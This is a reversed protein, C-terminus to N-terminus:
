LNIGQDRLAQTLRPILALSIDVSIHSADRYAVVGDKVAPCVNSCLWPNPDIVKFGPISLNKSRESTNCETISYNSLCAPIDRTPHPTDTIYILHPSSNKVQNLLKRQGENWWQTRDNFQPPQAFYQFSSMILVDPEIDQIRKITNERWQVCRSMKFGGQDRRVTEVSPCASKTLSILKYGSRNAIEILAPFWQAAHSDGYLVMTKDSDLKGYECKGSKTQAYNAHCGDDYIQPRAKIQALSVAGKIGSIDIKDSNTFMIVAGMFVSIGTVYAAKKYVLLPLIKKNRYPEEIFRHTLDALLITAAIALLREYVELPRAFYTSPLVLLPWHWLYLPYSIEGLWQSIRSNAVDNLFPPWSNITAILLVTGIVPLAANLGPFPTSENFLFASIILLVFGILGIFKRTKFPPVLVLLAGLGLEWARTPLSYFAWIPSNETQYISFIFSALTITAVLYTLVMRNKLYKSLTFFLLILLPWVLYFQEEVALSWYHIVPSPTADLNQYDAQWWAFLYNSVYLSAAIVDRGLSTRMTAPILMWSVVATIALVFFSTPLLRKFRRSYFEKFNITGSRDIERLLLGTILFGSIVYFIDVGIFGGSVWKAHFLTVLIAALARLGQIQTIKVTSNNQM